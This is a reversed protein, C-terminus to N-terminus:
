RISYSIMISVPSNASHGPYEQLIIVAATVIGYMNYLVTIKGSTSSFKDNDMDMKNSNSLHGKERKYSNLFHPLIIIIFYRISISLVFIVRGGHIYATIDPPGFYRRM